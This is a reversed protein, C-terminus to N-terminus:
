NRKAQVNKMVSEWLDNHFKVTQNTVYYPQYLLIVLNVLPSYGIIKNQNQQGKMLLHAAHPM